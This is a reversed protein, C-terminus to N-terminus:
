RFVTFGLTLIFLGLLLRLASGVRIRKETATMWLLIDRLRWPSVTFWMGAVVWFYALVVLVLRWPTDQWRTISLTFSALMLLVIALGRVALFDPVFLCTLFALSGFGLLMVNKFNAFDSITERNLNYLFWVAGIGMLLYGAPVNRPFHRLTRSFAPPNFLGFLQPVGIGIGILIALTSLTM